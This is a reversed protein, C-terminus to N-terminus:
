EYALVLTTPHAIRHILNTFKRNPNEKSLKQLEMIVEAGNGKPSQIISTCYSRHTAQWEKTTNIHARLLLKRRESVITARQGVRKEASIPWPLTGHKRLDDPNSGQLGKEEKNSAAVVLTGLNKEFKVFSRHQVRYKLLLTM